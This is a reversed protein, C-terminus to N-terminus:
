VSTPGAHQWRRVAAHMMWIPKSKTLLAAAERASSVGGGQYVACEVRPWRVANESRGSGFAAAAPTRSIPYPAVGDLAPLHGSENHTVVRDPSGTAIQQVRM